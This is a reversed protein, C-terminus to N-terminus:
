GTSVPVYTIQSKPTTLAAAQALLYNQYTDPINLASLQALFQQDDLLLKKRQDM